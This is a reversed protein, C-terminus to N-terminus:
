LVELDRRERSQGMPRDSVLRLAGWASAALTWLSSLALLVLGAMAWGVLGAGGVLLNTGSWAVDQAMAVLAQWGMGLAFGGAVVFAAVALAVLGLSWWFITIQFRFHSAALGEAERRCAYAVAAGILATLWFTFVSCFLLGYALLAMMRDYRRAVPDGSYSSM